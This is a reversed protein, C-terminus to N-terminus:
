EKKALRYILRHISKGQSRFNREYESMADDSGDFVYDPDDKVLELGAIMAQEKTFEYLSDNDTKIRLLGEPTLLNKLSSLRGSTTLRRKWHRKKPWPDSFNLYIADFRLNKLEEGYADFDGPIVRIDNREAEVVRKALIGAVSVDRELALYHGPQQLSLQLVFDGKGAGIELYLPRVSFFPDQPDWKEIVNEPHGELFPKAWAKYRGRV